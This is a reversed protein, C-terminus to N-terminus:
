IQTPQWIPINQQQKQRNNQKTTTTTQKTTTQNKKKKRRLTKKESIKKRENKKAKKKKQQFSSVKERMNKERIKRQNKESPQFFKVHTRLVTCFRLPSQIPELQCTPMM